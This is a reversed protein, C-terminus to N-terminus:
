VVFYLAHSQILVTFCDRIILGTPSQRLGHFHKIVIWVVLVVALIEWIATSIFSESNLDLQYTDGENFCM